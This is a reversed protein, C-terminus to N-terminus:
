PGSMHCHSYQLLVDVSTRCLLVTVIYWPGLRLWILKGLLWIVRKQRMAQVGKTCAICHLGLFSVLLICILKDFLILFFHTGM